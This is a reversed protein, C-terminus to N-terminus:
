YIKGTGIIFLPKLIINIKILLIQVKKEELYDNPYKGLGVGFPILGLKNIYDLPKHTICYIKM